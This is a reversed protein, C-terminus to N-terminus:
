GAYVYAVGRQQMRTFAIMMAPVLIVGPLLGDTLASNIEDPAGFGNAALKSTASAITNRCILITVNRDLLAEVTQSANVPGRREVHAKSFVNRVAPTGTARDEIGYQEGLRFQQWIEDRMVIPLGTGRVGLVLNVDHPQTKYADRWADLLSQAQALANGNKHTPIDLTTKFKGTLAKLWAESPEPGADPEPRRAAILWPLAALPMAGIVRSLFRRRPTTPRPETM